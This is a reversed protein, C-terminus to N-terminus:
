KHVDHVNYRLFKHTFQECHIDNESAMASREFVYSFLNMVTADVIQGSFAYAGVFILCLRLQVQPIMAKSRVEETVADVGFSRARAM